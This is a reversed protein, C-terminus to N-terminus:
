DAPKVKQVPLAAGRMVRWWGIAYYDNAREFIKDIDPPLPNSINTSGGPVTEAMYRGEKEVIVDPTMVAFEAGFAVPASDHKLLDRGMTHYSFGKPASLEILTPAIDIHSGVVNEPLQKNKLVAPGYLVLPVSSREYLSPQSNLFKRSWHDGTVAFVPATLTNEMHKIFGGLSKDSYWLHGFINLPVGSDYIDALDKPIERVPYGLGFVDIDYPPHYSTTMVVSFSPQDDSITEEIFKFLAEDDVGWENAHVWHGMHPAGYIEEFGQHRCFDELRQWSLYGSYFFRTRYGLKKFIPAISTPYPKLSSPQYNIMTKMDPLGAIITNLAHPTGRFAPLFRKIWFGKAAVTKLAECTQLSKYKELMPWSSYGEMVIVFIHKPLVAQGGSAVHQMYDDINDFERSDNFFSKVAARINGNPLYKKIGEEGHFEQYDSFQYRLAEVPNLVTKNLFPDRTISADKLQVPRSVSLGRCAFIVFCLIMITIVIKASKPLRSATDAWVPERNLFKKLFFTLGTFLLTLVALGRIVPVESWATKIIAGFDDFIIGFIWSNFQDNYEKFYPITVGCLFLALVTFCIGFFLRMRHVIRDMPFFGSAVSLLFTPLVFYMAVRSDFRFGNGMVYLIDILGSSPDKKSIFLVILILRFLSLVATMYLFSRLDKVAQISFRRWSLSASFKQQPESVM